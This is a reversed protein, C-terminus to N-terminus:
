GWRVQYTDEVRKISVKARDWREKLENAGEQAAYAARVRMWLEERLLKQHGWPVLKWLKGLLDEPDILDLRGKQDGAEAIAKAISLILVQANQSDRCEPDILPQLELV